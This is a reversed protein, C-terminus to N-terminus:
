VKEVHFNTELIANTCPFCLMKAHKLCVFSKCKQCYFRSKNKNKCGSCYKRTGEPIEEVNSSAESTGAVDQRRQRVTEPVNKQYSRRQLHEDILTLAIQKLFIRRKLDSKPDPHNSVHVVQSNIGAINLLSFFIVMPWRRTIRAVDYLSCLQDVSDVGGKTGNYFTIMEPKNKDGSAPDIADSNHLSSIMLVNKGKKPVYSMITIHEGFGFMSSTIPRHKVEVFEKPIERKNKRITGVLTLKHYRLLHEVLPVSTFWNDTTLNRSTGSIPAVLRVVISMADNNTQFPGAPQQGVYLELNLTYFMKSDVLSFLKLGYKNPKSPIYQRFGCRGRFGLLMEDITANQSISYHKRCSSVFIDFVERIPALKDTKKREERTTRDDFRLHRLLFLFRLKSMTLWFMEVGTGKRDWIEDVSLKSSKLLGSLYLLGILAKIEIKDTEKCDRDRKYNQTKTAIYFNTHEVIIDLIEDNIFLNWCEFPSKAQKAIGRTGPLQSIINWSRTRVAQNPAHKNWKTTNNKGLYFAARPIKAPTRVPSRDDDSSDDEQVTDSGESRYEVVDEDQDSDEDIPAEDSDVEEWLRM